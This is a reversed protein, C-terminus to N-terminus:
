DLHVVDMFYGSDIQYEEPGAQRAHLRRSGDKEKSLFNEFYPTLRSEILHSSDCRLQFFDM